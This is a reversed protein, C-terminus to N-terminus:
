RRRSQSARAGAPRRGRSRTRCLETTCDDILAAIQADSPAPPFYGLEADPKGLLGGDTAAPERAFSWGADLEAIAASWAPADHVPAVIPPAIHRASSL